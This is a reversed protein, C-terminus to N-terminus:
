IFDLCFWDFIKFWLGLCLLAIMFVDFMLFLSVSFVWVFVIFCGGSLFWAFVCVVFGFCVM